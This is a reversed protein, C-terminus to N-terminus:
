RLQLAIQNVFFYAAGLLVATQGLIVLFVGRVLESKVGEIKLELASKHSEAKLELYNKAADLDHKRPFAESRARFELEIVEVFARAQAPPVSAKELIDISAAQM